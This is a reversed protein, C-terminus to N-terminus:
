PGTATCSRRLYALGMAPPDVLRYGAQPARAELFVPAGFFGLVM